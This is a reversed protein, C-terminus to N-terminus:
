SSDGTASVQIEWPCGLLDDKWGSSWSDDIVVMRVSRGQLARMM